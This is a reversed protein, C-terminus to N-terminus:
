MWLAVTFWHTGRFENSHMLQMRENESIEADNVCFVAWRKGNLTPLLLNKFDNKAMKIFLNIDVMFLWNLDKDNTLFCVLRMIQEATLQVATNGTIDLVQNMFTVDPYACDFIDQDLWRENNQSVQSFFRSSCSASIYGCSLGKQINKNDNIM